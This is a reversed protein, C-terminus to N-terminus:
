QKRIRIRSSFFFPTNARAGITGTGNTEENYIDFKGELYLPWSDNINGDGVCKIVFKFTDLDVYEKGSLGKLHGYTIDSVAFSGGSSFDTVTFAVDGNSKFGGVLQQEGMEGSWKGMINFEYKGREGASVHAFRWEGLSTDFKYTMDYVCRASFIVSDISCDVTLVDTNKDLSTVQEKLVITDWSTRFYNQPDTRMKELEIDKDVGKLPRCTWQDRVETIEDLIWGGKDYYNFSLVYYQTYEVNDSRFKIECHSIDSKSNKDTQRKIINFEDLSVENSLSSCASLFHEKMVAEKPPSPTCGTLILCHLCVMLILCASRKM